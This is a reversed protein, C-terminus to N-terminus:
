DATLFAAAEALARDAEPTVSSYMQYCHMLGDTERLVVEVSQERLATVMRTSHDYLRETRDVQFLMKPAGEFTGYLPSIEPDKPDAAGVYAANGRLVFGQPLLAESGANADFTTSRKTLDTVPSFVAVASPKAAGKALVRHTLALALNGGASDGAVSVYADGYQEQLYDLAAEAEDLAAPFPSEPAKSYDLFYVACLGANALGSVLGKYDRLGGIVFAGGHLYLVAKQPNTGNPTARTLTPQGNVPQFSVDKHVRHLTLANLAAVPRLLKPCALLALLTKQMM